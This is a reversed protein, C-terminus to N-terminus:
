EGLNVIHGDVGELQIPQVKGKVIKKYEPLKLGRYLEPYELKFYEKGNADITDSHDTTKKCGALLFVTLSLIYIYVRM